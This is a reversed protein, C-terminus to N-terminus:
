SVQKYLIGLKEAYDFAQELEEQYIGRSIDSYIEPNKLVRYDPRYQGM